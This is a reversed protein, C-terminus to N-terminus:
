LIQVQQTVARKIAELFRLLRRRMPHQRSNDPAEATPHTKVLPAARQLRAKGAEKAVRPLKETRGRLVPGVM